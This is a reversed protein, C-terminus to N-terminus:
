ERHFKSVVSVAVNFGSDSSVGSSYANWVAGDIKEVVWWAGRKLEHFWDAGTGIQPGASWQGISPTKSTRFEVGNPVPELYGGVTVLEHM